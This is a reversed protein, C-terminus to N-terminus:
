PCVPVGGDKVISCESFTVFDFIKQLPAQRTFVAQMTQATLGYSGVSTMTVLAHKIPVVESNLYATMNLNRMDGYHSTIRIKYAMSSDLGSLVVPSASIPYRQNVFNENWNIGIAPVWETYGIELWSCGGCADEWSLRLADIDSGASADDPDYLDINVFDNVNLSMILTPVSDSMSRVYSSNNPLSSNGQLSALTADTKRLKYLGDEIGSEASYFAATGEDIRKSQQFDRLLLDGLTFGTILVGSLVLLVLLLVNGRHFGNAPCKLNLYKKDM